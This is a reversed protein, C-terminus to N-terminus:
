LFRVRRYVLIFSLIGCKPVSHIESVGLTKCELVWLLGRLRGSDWVYDSYIEFEYFVM